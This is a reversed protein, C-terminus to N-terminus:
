LSGEAVLPAGAVSRVMGVSDRRDDASVWISRPARGVEIWGMSGYFRGLGLGSRYVLDVQEVGPLTRAVAHLGGLAVRGLNRGRVDPDVMFRQLTATHRFLGDDSRIWWGFALLRGGRDRMIGLTRRDDDTRELAEDLREAVAARPADRTFGVAGGAGNVACWLDLMQGRLPADVAREDAGAVRVQPLWWARSPGREVPDGPIVHPDGRLLGASAATRGSAANDDRAVARVTWGPLWESAWATAARAAERGLGQGHCELAFRYYLNAVGEEDHPLPRVGAMGLLRGSPRDEVVWYGFEDTEWAEIWTQLGVLNATRDTTVAWPAHRFLREDSHLAHHFVADEIRPPRLRLRRTELTTPAGAPVARDPPATAM